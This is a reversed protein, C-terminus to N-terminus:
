DARRDEDGDIRELTQGNKVRRHCLKIPLISLRLPRSRLHLPRLRMQEGNRLIGVLVQHDILRVLRDDYSAFGTGTFSFSRLNYQRVQRSSTFAEAPRLLVKEVLFRCLLLRLLGLTLLAVSRNLFLHQVRIRKEFCETVGLRELVVVRRTEALEDLNVEIRSAHEM